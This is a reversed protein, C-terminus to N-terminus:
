KLKSNNYINNFVELLLIFLCNIYIILIFTNFYPASSNIFLLIKM